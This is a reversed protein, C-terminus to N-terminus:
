TPELMEVQIPGRSWPDFECAVQVAKDASAGIAMAGLAFQEGSGIAYFPASVDQPLFRETFVQVKGTAHLVIACFDSKEPTRPLRDQHAGNDFWRFFPIAMDSEGCSAILAGDRTRMIKHRSGRYISTWTADTAAMVGNRIAITTM